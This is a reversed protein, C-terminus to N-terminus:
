PICAPPAPAPEQTPDPEAPSAPAPAPDDAAAPTEIVVPPMTPEVTPIVGPESPPQQGACIWQAAAYVCGTDQASASFGLFTLAGALVVAGGAAALTAGTRGTM